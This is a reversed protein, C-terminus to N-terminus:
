FKVKEAYASLLHVVYSEISEKSFIELGLTQGNMAIEHAEQDHARLWGFIEVLDSLDNRIPVYNVYPILCKYYWQVWNSIPSSSVKLLVSNSILISRCRMFTSCNGDIDLLYKYSLWDNLPLTPETIKKNPLMAILNMISEHYITNFDADLLDPYKSSFVVARVRDNSCFETDPAIMGTSGGRFFGKYWKSEWPHPKSYELILDIHIADALAEHDPILCVNKKAAQNGAMAFIPYASSSSFGDSTHVVFDVDPLSYKRVLNSMFVFVYNNRQECQNRSQIMEFHGKRVKCYVIQWGRESCDLFWDFLEASTFSHIGSLDEKIQEELGKPIQKPIEGYVPIMSFFILFFIRYRSPNFFRSNPLVAFVRSPGSSRRLTFCTLSLSGARLAGWIKQGPQPGGFLLEVLGTAIFFLYVKFM